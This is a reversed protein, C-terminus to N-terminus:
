GGAVSRRGGTIEEGASKDGGRDQKGPVADCRWGRGGRDRGPHGDGWEEDEREPPRIGTTLLCREETLYSVRLMM